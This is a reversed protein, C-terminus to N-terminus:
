ADWGEPMGIADIEHTKHVLAKYGMREVSAASERAEERTAYAMTRRWTCNETGGTRYVVTFTTRRPSTNRTM